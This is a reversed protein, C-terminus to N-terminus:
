REREDRKSDCRDYGKQRKLKGRENRRRKDRKRKRMEKMIEIKKKERKYRNIERVVIERM